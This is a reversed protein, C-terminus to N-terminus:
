SQAVVVSICRTPRLRLRTLWVTGYMAAYAILFLLIVLVVGAVAWLLGEVRDRLLRRRPVAKRVLQGDKPRAPEYKDFAASVEPPKATGIPVSTMRRYEEDIREIERRRADSLDPPRKRPGEM